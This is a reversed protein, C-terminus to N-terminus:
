NRYVSFRRFMTPFDVKQNYDIQEYNIDFDNCISILRSDRDIQRNYATLTDIKSRGFGSPKHHQIGHIEVICNISPIWIDARIGKHLKNNTIKELGVELEVDDFLLM